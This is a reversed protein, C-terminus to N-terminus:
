GTALKRLKESVHIKQLSDREGSIHANSLFFNEISFLKLKRKRRSEKENIL